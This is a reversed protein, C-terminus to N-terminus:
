GILSHSCAPIYYQDAEKKSLCVEQRKHIRANFWSIFATLLKGGIFKHLDLCAITITTQLCTDFCIANITLCRCSFMYIYQVYIYVYLLMNCIYIYIYYMYYRYINMPHTISTM